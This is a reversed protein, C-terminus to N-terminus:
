GTSPALTQIADHKDQWSSWISQGVDVDLDLDLDVTVNYGRISKLVKYFNFSKLMRRLIYLVRDDVAYLM